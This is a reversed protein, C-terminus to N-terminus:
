ILLKCLDFLYYGESKKRAVSEFFFFKSIDYKKLCLQTHSQIRLLFNTKFDKTNAQFTNTERFNEHGTNSFPANNAKNYYIKLVEIETDTEVTSSVIQSASTLFSSLFATIFVAILMTYLFTKVTKM